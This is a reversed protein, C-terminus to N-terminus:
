KPIPYIVLTLIWVPNAGFANAGILSGDIGNIRINLLKGRMFSLDQLKCGISYLDISRQYFNDTNALLTFAHGQSLKSYTNGQPLSSSTIVYPVTVANNVYFSEVAVQYECQTDLVDPMNLFYTGDRWDGSVVNISHINLRYYKRNQNDALTEKM